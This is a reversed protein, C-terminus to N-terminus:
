MLFTTLIVLWISVGDVGVFYSAGLSPIWSAKETLQPGAVSPDFAGVVSLSIAFTAVTTILAIWRYHDDRKPQEDERDMLVSYLVFFFAVALTLFTTITLSLYM